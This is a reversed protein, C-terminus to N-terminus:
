TMHNSISRWIGAKHGVIMSHFCVTGYLFINRRLVSSSPGQPQVGHRVIGVLRFTSILSLLYHTVYHMQKDYSFIKNYKRYHKDNNGGTM